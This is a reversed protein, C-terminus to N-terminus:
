NRTGYVLEVIRKKPWLPSEEIITGDADKRYIVTPADTSNDFITCVDCLAVLEPIIKLSKIYRSRIKDAPVDHGGELM